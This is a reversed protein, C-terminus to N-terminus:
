AAPALTKESLHGAHKLSNLQKEVEFFQDQYKELLMEVAELQYILRDYKFGDFNGKNPCYEESMVLVVATSVLARSRSLVELANDVISIPNKCDIINEKM